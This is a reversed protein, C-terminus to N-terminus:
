AKKVIVVFAISLRSVSTVIVGMGCFLIVGQWM